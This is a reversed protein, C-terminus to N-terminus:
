MVDSHSKNWERALENKINRRMQESTVSGFNQELVLWEPILENRNENQVLNENQYSNWELLMYVSSSSQEPNFIAIKYEPALPAYMNLRARFGRQGTVCALVGEASSNSKIMHICHSSWEPVFSQGSNNLQCVITFAICRNRIRARSKYLPHNRLFHTVSIILFSYPKKLLVNESSMVVHQSLAQCTYMEIGGGRLWIKTPVIKNIKDEKQPSIPPPAIKGDGVPM